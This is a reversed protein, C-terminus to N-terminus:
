KGTIDFLFYFKRESKKTKKFIRQLRNFPLTKIITQSLRMSLSFGKPKQVLCSNLSVLQNDQHRSVVVYGKGTEPLVQTRKGTIKSIPYPATVM